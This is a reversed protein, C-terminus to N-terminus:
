YFVEMEPQTLKRILHTHTFCINRILAGHIVDADGPINKTYKNITKKCKALDREIQILFENETM